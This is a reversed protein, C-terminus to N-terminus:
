PKQYVTRDATLKYFDNTKLDTDADAAAHNAYVNLVANIYGNVQLKAESITTEFNDIDIGVKANKLITLADAQVVDGNGVVLLRDTLDFATTSNPIYDTNQTGLATESYSQSIAGNGISIGASGNSMCSKGLAISTEGFAVCNEGFAMSVFGNAISEQGWAISFDGNAESNNGGMAISNLGTASQPTFSGSDYNESYLYYSGGGGGSTRVAYQKLDDYLDQITTFGNIPLYKADFIIDNNESFVYVRSLDNSLKVYQLPKPMTHNVNGLKFEISDANVTYEFTM